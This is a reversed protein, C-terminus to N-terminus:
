TGGILCRISSSLLDQRLVKPCAWWCLPVRWRCALAILSFFWFAMFVKCLRFTCFNIKALALLWCALCGLLWFGFFEGWRGNDFAVVFPCPAFIFFDSLLILTRGAHSLLSEKAKEGSKNNSSSSEKSSHFPFSIRPCYLVYSALFRHSPLTSRHCFRGM